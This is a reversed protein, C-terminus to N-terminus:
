PRSASTGTPVASQLQRLVIKGLRRDSIGDKVRVGTSGSQTVYMRGRFVQIEVWV